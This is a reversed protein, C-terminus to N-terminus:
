SIASCEIVRCEIISYLFATHWCRYRNMCFFIKRKIISPLFSTNWQGTGYVNLPLLGSPTVVQVNYVGNQLSTVQAFADGVSYLISFFFVLIDLLRM